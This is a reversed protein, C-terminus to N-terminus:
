AADARRRQGANGVPGGAQADAPRPHRHGADVRHRRRDPVRLRPLHVTRLGQRVTETSRPLAPHAPDEFSLIVIGSSNGRAPTRWQDGHGGMGHEELQELGHTTARADVMVSDTVTPAAPNSLDLAYLRDGLTSLYGHKGDPHLWFEMTAFGKVPYRGVLTTPRVVDRPTVTLTAVASRRLAGSSAIPAPSARWLAGDGEAQAAGPGVFWDPLVGSVRAGARDRADLTLRVVDGTRVTATAPQIAVTAVPNAAVAIRLTATASGARATVIARGPRVAGLLGTSSVRVIGPQDSSWAVPDHRLNGEADAVRATVALEQGVYMRDPGPDLAVTAAPGPVITIVAFATKPRGGGKPSALVTVRLAGVAGATALGTSDVTGEFQGGVQFWRIRVDDLPRGASDFAQASLRLTDGVAIAAAAPRITVSAVPTPQPVQQLVLALALLM